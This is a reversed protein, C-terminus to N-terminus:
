MWGVALNDNNADRSPGCHILGEHAVENSQHNIILSLRTLIEIKTIQGDISKLDCFLVVNEYQVMINDYFAVTLM